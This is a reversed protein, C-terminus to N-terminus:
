SHLYPSQHPATPITRNSDHPNGELQNLFEALNEAEERAGITVAGGGIDQVQATSFNDAVEWDNANTARCSSM